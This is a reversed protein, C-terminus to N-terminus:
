QAEKKRAAERAAEKATELDTQAKILEAQNKLVDAEDALSTKQSKWLAQTTALIANVVKLPIQVTGLVESPENIDHKKILGNEITIDNVTTGVMSRWMPVYQVRSEDILPMQEEYVILPIDVEADSAKASEVKYNRTANYMAEEKEKVSNALDKDLGKKKTELTKLQTQLESKAKDVIQQIHTNLTIVKERAAAKAPADAAPADMAALAASYKTWYDNDKRFNLPRVNFADLAKIASDSNKLIDALTKEMAAGDGELANIKAELDTIEDLLKKALTEKGALAEKAEVYEAAKSKKNILAAEAAPTFNKKRYDNLAEKRVSLVYSMKGSTATRAIVGATLLVEEDIDAADVYDYMGSEASKGSLGSDAARRGAAKRHSKSCAMHAAQRLEKRIDSEQARNARFGPATFALTFPGSEDPIIKRTVSSGAASSMEYKLTALLKMFHKYETSSLSNGGVGDGSKLIESAKETGEIGTTPTNLAVVARATEEMIEPLRGVDSTKASTLLGKGDIQYIQVRDVFPNRKIQIAFSIPDAQIEHSVVIKPKGEEVGVKFRYFSCPLNYRVGKSLIRSDSASKMSACGAVLLASSLILWSNNKLGQRTWAPRPWTLQTAM